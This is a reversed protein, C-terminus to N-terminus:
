ASSSNYECGSQFSFAWSHGRQGRKKRVLWSRSEGMPGLPRDPEGIAFSEESGTRRGIVSFYAGDFVSLNGDLIQISQHKLGSAKGEIAASITKEISGERTDSKWV